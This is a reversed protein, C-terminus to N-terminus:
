QWWLGCNLEGYWEINQGESFRISAVMNFNVFSVEISRGCVLCLHLHANIVDSRDLKLLCVM